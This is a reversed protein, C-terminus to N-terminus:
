VWPELLITLLTSLSCLVTKLLCVLKRIWTAITM